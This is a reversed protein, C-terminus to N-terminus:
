NVIWYFLGFNFSNIRREKHNRGGQCTEWNRVCQLRGVANYEWWRTETHPYHEKPKVSRGDKESLRQPWLDRTEDWRVLYRAGLICLREGPQGEQLQEPDKSVDRELKREQTM